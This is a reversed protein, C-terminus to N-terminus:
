FNLRVKNYQGRETRVKPHFVKEWTALLYILDNSTLGEENLCWKEGKLFDLGRGSGQHIGKIPHFRHTGEMRARM